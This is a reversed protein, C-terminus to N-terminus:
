ELMGYIVNKLKSVTELKGSNIRQIFYLIVLNEKPDVLFYNGTWGDWGFEGVSGLTAAKNPNTMIRMLNGYSYGKQAEWDRNKLIEDSVAPTTIFEVSKRHLIRVGEYEGKNLLMLAFKKYDNITSVLGAGASEFKPPEKYDTIGLTRGNYPLLGDKTYEYVQAFRDWKDSPVYFDTDEMGLPEFIEKKLFDSLKMGSAIEIIAGCVDASTGYRWDEGPNFELPLKGLEKCWEVTTKSKGKKQEDQLKKYLKAVEKGAVTSEDPYSMGSTMNMLDSIVLERKAPIIKGNNLVKPSKYTSMYRSVPENLDIIGREVLIMMAVSTVPKTMSFMRFIVNDLMSKNEEKNAYGYQKRYIEVNDKIVCIDAGSIEGNKVDLDIIRDIYNNAGM